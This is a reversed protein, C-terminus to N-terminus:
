NRTGSCMAAHDSHTRPVRALFRVTTFSEGRRRRNQCRTAIMRRFNPLRSFM